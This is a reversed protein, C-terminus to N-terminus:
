KDEKCHGLSARRVVLHKQTIKVIVPEPVGYTGRLIAGPYVLCRPGLITGPMLVCNAGLKVDDGLLGGLRRLGTAVRHGELVVQVESEDLKLNAIM